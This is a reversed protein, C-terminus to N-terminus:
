NKGSGLGKMWGPWVGMGWGAQEYQRHLIGMWQRMEMRTMTLCARDEGGMPLELGIRDGGCRIDIRSPLVALFGGQHLAVPRTPEFQLRADEQRVAQRVLGSVPSEESESEELYRGLTGVLRGAMRQTLWFVVPSGGERTEAAMCIRDELEVYRLTVKHLVMLRGGLRQEMASM